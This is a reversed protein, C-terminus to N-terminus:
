SDTVPQNGSLMLIVWVIKDQKAREHKIIYVLGGFYAYPKGTSHEIKATDCM